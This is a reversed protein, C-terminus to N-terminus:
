KLQVTLGISGDSYNLMDLIDMFIKLSIVIPSFTFLDEPVYYLMKNHKNLVTWAAGNCQVFITQVANVFKISYTINPQKIELADFLEYLHRHIFNEFYIDEMKDRELLSVTKILAKKTRTNFIDPKIIEM